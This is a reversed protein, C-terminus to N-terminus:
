TGSSPPRQIVSQAAVVAAVVDYLGEGHGSLPLLPPSGRGTQLRCSIKLPPMKTPRGHPPSPECRTLRSTLWLLLTRM